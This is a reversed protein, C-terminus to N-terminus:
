PESFLAALAKQRITEAEGSRDMEELVRSVTSAMGALSEHLYHYLPEEDLPPGASRICRKRSRMAQRTGVTEDCLVVDLRGMVLLDFLEEYTRKVTVADMGRTKDELLRIGNRIGIRLSRLSAWDSTRLDPRCAYPLIRAANVPHAVQILTPYIKGIAGIRNVEGDTRGESSEILARQAPLKINHVTHGIRAYAAKLVAFSVEANADGTSSFFYEQQARVPGCLCVLLLVTLATRM